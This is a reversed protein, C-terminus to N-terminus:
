ILYKQLKSVIYDLKIELINSQIINFYHNKNNMVLEDFNEFYEHHFGKRYNSTLLETTCIFPAKFSYYKDIKQSKFLWMWYLTYETWTHPHGKTSRLLLDRYNMKHLEELHNTLNIVEETVLIQPSVGMVKNIFLSDGEIKNEFEKKFNFTKIGPLMLATSYMHWSERTPTNEFETFFSCILKGDNRMEKISFPKTLFLDTEFSFFVETKIHKAIELKALQQIMWGPHVTVKHLPFTKLEPLLELEDYIVFPFEPFERNLREEIVPADRKTTVIVFEFLDEINLFKKFTPLQIKIVRELDNDEVTRHNIVMPMVFSFKDKILKSSM